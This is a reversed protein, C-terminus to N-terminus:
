KGALAKALTAQKAQSEIRVILVTWQSSGTVSQYQEEQDADTLMEHAMKRAHKHNGEFRIENIKLTTAM